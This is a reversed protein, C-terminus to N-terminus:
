EEFIWSPEGEKRAEELSGDYRSDDDEMELRREIPGHGRSRRLDEAEVKGDHILQVLDTYLDARKSRSHLYGLWGATYFLVAVTLLVDQLNM